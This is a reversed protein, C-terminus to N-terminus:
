FLYAFIHSCHPLAPQWDMLYHIFFGWCLQLFVCFFSFISDRGEPFKFSLAVPYGVTFFICFIVMWCDTQNARGKQFSLTPSFLFSAHQLFLCVFLCFLLRLPLLFHFAESGCEKNPGTILQVEELTKMCSVLCPSQDFSSDNWNVPISPSSQCLKLQSKEKFLWTIISCNPM